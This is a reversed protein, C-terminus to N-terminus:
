LAFKQLAQLNLFIALDAVFYCVLCTSVTGSDPISLCLSPIHVTVSALDQCIEHRSVLVTQASRQHHAFDYVPVDVSRGLMLSKLCEVLAVRDLADPHDFNYNKVDAMEAPTLGRYFSDQSLPFSSSTAM